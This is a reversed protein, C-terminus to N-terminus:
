KKINRGAFTDTQSNCNPCLLRLNELRHDNSIGNIHDLILTIPKEQWENELGCLVCKNKIFNEKILRRKLTGRHYTSDKVMYEKLPLGKPAARKLGKNSGLGRPIHSSNINSYELRAYLTKYNGGKNSLNFHNLIDSITEAKSVVKKLEEDSLEWIVSRKRRPKKTHSYDNM